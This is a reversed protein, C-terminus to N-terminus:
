ASAGGKNYTYFIASVLAVSVLALALWGLWLTKNKPTPDPEFFRTNNIADKTVGTINDLTFYTDPGVAGWGNEMVTIGTVIAAMREPTIGISLDQNRNIATMRELEQIYLDTKNNDSKPTLVPILKNFTNLGKKTIKNYVNLVGARLGYYPHAYAEFKGDAGPIEGLWKIKSKIIGTPNNITLLRTM